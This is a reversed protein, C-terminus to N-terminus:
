YYNQWKINNREIAIHLATQGYQNKINVDAKSDLLLKAIDINNESVAQYLPTAKDTTGNQINVDAKADLLLKVIEIDGISVAINLPTANNSKDQINLNAGKNILIRVTEIDRHWVARHLQTKGWGDQHDIDMNQEENSFSGIGNLLDKMEQTYAYDLATKGFSDTINKNAKAALLLKVAPINNLKVACHLATKGIFDERLIYQRGDRFVRCGVCQLNLDSKANILLKLIEIQEFSVDSFDFLSYVDSVISLLPNAGYKNQLNVDAKAAILLKVMDLNNISVANHLPTDKNGDQTNVDAKAAILLKTIEINSKRDYGGISLNLPMGKNVDAKADILLKVMETNNNKIARQLPTDNFVPHVTNTNAKADLLLKAMNLDNREIAEYLSTYEGYKINPNAGKNILIRATVIDKNIVACYLQTRGWSDKKNIDQDQEKNSGSLGEIIGIFGLMVLVLLGVKKM